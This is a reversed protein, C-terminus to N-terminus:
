GEVKIDTTLKGDAMEKTQAMIRNLYGMRRMFIYLSPILIFVVLPIYIVLLMGNVVAGVFGMGALFFIILIALSQVGMSRNIFLEQTANFLKSTFTHQWLAKKNMEEMYRTRLWAICIVVASFLLFTLMILVILETTNIFDYYETGWYGISHITGLMGDIFLITLWSAFLTGIIAVDVSLNNFVKRISPWVM